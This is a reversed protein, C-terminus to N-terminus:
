GEKALPFQESLDRAQRPECRTSPGTNPSLVLRM